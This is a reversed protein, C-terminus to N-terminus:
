LNQLVPYPDSRSPFIQYGLSSLRRIELCLFFISLNGKALAM